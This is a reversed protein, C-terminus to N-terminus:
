HIFISLAYEQVSLENETGELNYTRSLWKEPCLTSIIKYMNTQIQVIYLLIFFYLKLLSLLYKGM